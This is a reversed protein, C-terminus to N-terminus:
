AITALIYIEFTVSLPYKFPVYLLSSLSGLGPLIIFRILSHRFELLVPLFNPENKLEETSFGIMAGM